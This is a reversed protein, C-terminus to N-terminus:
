VRTDSGVLEGIGSSCDRLKIRQNTRWLRSNWSELLRKKKELLNLHNPKTENAHNTNYINLRAQNKAM